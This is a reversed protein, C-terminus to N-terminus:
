AAVAGPQQHLQQAAQAEGRAEDGAVQDLQDDVLFRHRAGAPRVLIEGVQMGPGLDIQRARAPDPEVRCGAQKGALAM